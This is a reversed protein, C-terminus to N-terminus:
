EITLTDDFGVVHVRLPGGGLESIDFLITESVLAECTDGNADHFLVLDVTSPHTEIVVEDWFLRYEHEECGGAYSVGITLEDGEIAADTITLPDSGSPPEGIELKQGHPAKGWSFELTDEVGELRLLILGDDGGLEERMPGLDFVLDRSLLAECEDGNADHVLKLEAQLPLSELVTGDWFLEYDHEECGGSHRVRLRLLDGEIKASTISLGDGPGDPEGINIPVATEDSRDGSREGHESCGSAGLALAFPLATLARLAPHHM